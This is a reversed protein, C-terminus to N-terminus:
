SGERRVNRRLIIWALFGAMTIDISACFPPWWVPMGPNTILLGHFCDYVGHGGLGVVVYWQSRRFGLATLVFFAAIAVSELLLVNVSGGMVAFLAYYLAVVALITAYYARDRDLGVVRGFLWVVVGLVVGILLAM